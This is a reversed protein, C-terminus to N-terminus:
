AVRALASPLWGDAADDSMLRHVHMGAVPMAQLRRLPLLFQEVWQQRIRPQSFDVWQQGDLGSLHLATAPPELELADFVLLLHLQLHRSCAQWVTVPVQAARSVDTIVVLNGARCLRAAQELQKVLTGVPTQPAQAYLQVLAQLVRMVAPQGRGAQLPVASATDLLALRDGQQQAWWAAAAGVRAAQVSKLRQRTGFFQVPQPDVLLLCVRDREAEFRKSYLQGSRATVRWDVHRAEDGAVYPRSDAYDMGRGLPRSARQGPRIAARPQRRARQRVDAALAVLEALQPRLGDGSALAHPLRSM